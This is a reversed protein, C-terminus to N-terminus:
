LNIQFTETILSIKQLIKETEEFEIFNQHFKLFQLSGVDFIYSFAM